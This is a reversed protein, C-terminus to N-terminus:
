AMNILDRFALNV